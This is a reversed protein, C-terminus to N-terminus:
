YVSQAISFVRHPLLVLRQQQLDHILGGVGLHPPAPRPGPRRAPAPTGAPRRHAESSFKRPAEDPGEEGWLTNLCYVASPIGKFLNTSKVHTDLAQNSGNSDLKNVYGVRRM